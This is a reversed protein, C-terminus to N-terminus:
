RNSCILFPAHCSPHIVAPLIPRVKIILEGIDATDPNIVLDLNFKRMARALFMVEEPSGFRYIKKLKM